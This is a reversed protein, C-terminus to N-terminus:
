VLYHEWTLLNWFFKQIIFATGADDTRCARIAKASVISCGSANILAVIIHAAQCFDNHFRARIEACFLPFKSLQVFGFIIELCQKSCNDMNLLFQLHLIAIRFCSAAIVSYIHEHHPFVTLCVRPSPRGSGPHQGRLGLSLSPRIFACTHLTLRFNRYVRAM